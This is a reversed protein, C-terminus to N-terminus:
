GHRSYAQRASAELWTRPHAQQDGQESLTVNNEALWEKIVTFRNLKDQWMRQQKRASRRSTMDIRMAREDRIPM